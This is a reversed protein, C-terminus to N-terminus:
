YSGGSLKSYHPSGDANHGSLYYGPPPSDDPRTSSGSLGDASTSPPPTLGSSDNGSTDPYPNEWESPDSGNNTTNSSGGNKLAAAGVNGLGQYLQQTDKANSAYLGSLARMPGLKADALKLQNNFDAEPINANYKAATNMIDTNGKNIADQAAAEQEKQRYDRDLGAGANTGRQQIAAFLRKQQDASTQAGAEAERQTAAQEGAIESALQYGSDLSGRAQMQNELTQQRSRADRSVSNRIANMTAKDALTAGGGAILDNLQADSQAQETRYRPDDQINALETGKQQTLLLNQLKPLNIQGYQDLSAKVLDMAAQKDMQSAAQGAASGLLQTFFGAIEGIDM